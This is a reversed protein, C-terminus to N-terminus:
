SYDTFKFFSRLFNSFESFKVSFSIITINITYDYYWRILISVYM